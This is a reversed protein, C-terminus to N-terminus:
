RAARRAPSGHQRLVVGAGRGFGVPALEHYAGRVKDASKIAQGTGPCAPDIISLGESAKCLAFSLGSLTQSTLHPQFGSVDIGQVSVVM